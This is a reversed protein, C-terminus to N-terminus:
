RGAIVQDLHANCLRRVPIMGVGQRTEHQTALAHERQVTRCGRKCVPSAGTIGRSRLWQNRATPVLGGDPQHHEAPAPRAPCPEPETSAMGLRWYAERASDFCWPPLM